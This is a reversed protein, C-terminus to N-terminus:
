RRRKEYRCTLKVQSHSIDEHLCMSKRREADHLRPTYCTTRSGVLLHDWGAAAPHPRHRGQDGVLVVVPVREAATAGTQPGARPAAADRPALAASSRAASCACEDASKAAAEAAAASDRGSRAVAAAAAIQQVVGSCTGEDDALNIDVLALCYNSATSAHLSDHTSSQFLPCAKHRLSLRVFPLIGGASANCSKLSRTPNSPSFMRNVRAPLASPPAPGPPGLRRLRRMMALRCDACRERSRLNCYMESRSALMEPSLSWTDCSPGCSAKRFACCVPSPTLPFSVWAPAAPFLGTRAAAAPYRCCLHLLSSKLRATEDRLM